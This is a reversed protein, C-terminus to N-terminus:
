PQSAEGAPADLVAESHMVREKAETLKDSSAPPTAVKTSEKSDEQVVIGSAVDVLMTGSEQDNTNTAMEDGGGNEHYKLVETYSLHGIQKGGIEKVWDLKCSISLRDRPALGMFKRVKASDDWSDGVAVPQDSYNLEDPTLIGELLTTDDDGADGKFNSSVSGDPATSLVITKGAYPCPTVKKAQGAETITDTSDASFEVRARTASGDAVALVTETFKWSQVTHTDSVTRNGSLTQDAKDTTDQVISYSIRQGVHLDERLTYQDDAMANACIMSLIALVFITRAPM